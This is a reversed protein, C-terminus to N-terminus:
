YTTMHCLMFKTVQSLLKGALIIAHVRNDNILSKIKLRKCYVKIKCSKLIHVFLKKFFTRDLEKENNTFAYHKMYKEQINGRKKKRLDEMKAM